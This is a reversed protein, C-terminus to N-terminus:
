PYSFGPRDLVQGGNALRGLVSTREETLSDQPRVLPTPITRPRSHIITCASYRWVLM